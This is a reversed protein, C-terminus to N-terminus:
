DRQGKEQKERKDKKQEFFDERDLRRDEREEAKKEYQFINEGAEQRKQERDYFDERWDKQLDEEETKEPEIYIKQGAATLICYVSEERDYHWKGEIRVKEDPRSNRGTSDYWKKDRTNFSIKNEGIVMGPFAEGKGRRFDRVRAKMYERVEDSINETLESFVEYVEKECRVQFKTDYQGRGEPRGKRKQENM